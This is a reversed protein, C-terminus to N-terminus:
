FTRIAYSSRLIFHNLKIIVTRKNENLQQLHLKKDKTPIPQQPGTWPTPYDRKDMSCARAAHDAGGGAHTRVRKERCSFMYKQAVIGLDPSLRGSEPAMGAANIAAPSAAALSSRRTRAFPFRWRLTRQAAGRLRRSAFARLFVLM